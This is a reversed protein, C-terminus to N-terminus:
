LGSSAGRGKAAAAQSRAKDIVQYKFCAMNGKDLQRGQDADDTSKPGQLGRGQRGRSLIDRPHGAVVPPGMMKRLESALAGFEMM